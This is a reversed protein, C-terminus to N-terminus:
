GAERRQPQTFLQRAAITQGPYLDGRYLVAVRVGVAWVNKPEVLMAANFSEIYQTAQEATMCGPEAPRIAVSNPPVDSWRRPEWDGYGALWVRYIEPDRDNSSGM